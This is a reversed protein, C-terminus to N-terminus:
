TRWGVMAAGMTAATGGQKFSAPPHAGMWEHPREGGQGLPQDHSENPGTIFGGQSMSIDLVVKGM